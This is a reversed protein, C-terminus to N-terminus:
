KSGQTLRVAIWTAAVITVIAGGVLVMLDGYQM